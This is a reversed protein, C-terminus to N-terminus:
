CLLKEAILDLARPDSATNRLLLKRMACVDM